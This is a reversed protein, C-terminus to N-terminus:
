DYKLELKIKQYLEDPMKNIISIKNFYTNKGYENFELDLIKNIIDSKLITTGRVHAMILKITELPNNVLNYYEIKLINTNLNNVWKRKFNNYYNSKM